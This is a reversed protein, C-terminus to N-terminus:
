SLFFVYIQYAVLANSRLSTAAKDRYVKLLGISYLTLEKCADRFMVASTRQGMIDERIDPRLRLLM